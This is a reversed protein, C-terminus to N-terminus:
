KKDIQLNDVMLKEIDGEKILKGVVIVKKGSLGTFDGGDLLYSSDPTVLEMGSETQKVVGKYMMKKAQQAATEVTKEVTEKPAPSSAYLSSSFAMMSVVIAISIIKKMQIRRIDKPYSEELFEIGVRAFKM